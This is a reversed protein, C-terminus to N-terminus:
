KSLKINTVYVTWPATGSSQTNFIVQLVSAASSYEEESAYKFTFHYEKWDKANPDLKFRKTARFQKAEGKPTQGRITIEVAANAGTGQPSSDPPVLVDMEITGNARIVEAAKKSRAVAQWTGDPIALRLARKSGGGSQFQLEVVDATAGGMAEWDRLGDPWAPLEVALVVSCIGLILLALLKRM